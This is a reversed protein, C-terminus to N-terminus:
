RDIWAVSRSYQIHLYSNQISLGQHTALVIRIPGQGSKLQVGLGYGFLQKLKDEDMYYGVDLLTFIQSQDGFGMVLDNQFSAVSRSRYENESYGRVSNIGGIPLRRSPDKIDDGATQIQVASRQNVFSFLKLPLELETRVTLHSISSAEFNLEQFLATNLAVGKHVNRDLTNQRYGFGISQSHIAKWEPNVLGGEYTIISRHDKFHVLLSRDWDVTWELGFRKVLIQYNGEVVERSFGTSLALPTSFIWPHRYSIDFSESAPNLRKWYLYMANGAGSINPASIDIHGYFSVTDAGAAQNFAALADIGVSPKNQILYSLHFTDNADKSIIPKERLSYGLNSLVVVSRGIDTPFLYAKNKLLEKRLFASEKDEIGEFHIYELQIAEGQEMILKVVAPDSTPILQVNANWYGSRRADKLFGAITQDLQDSKVLLTDQAPLYSWIAVILLLAAISRYRM